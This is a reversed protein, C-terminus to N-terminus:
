AAKYVDIINESRRILRLNKKALRNKLGEMLYTDAVGNFADYMDSGAECHVTLVAKTGPKPASFLLEPGSMRKTFFAIRNFAQRGARRVNNPLENTFTM